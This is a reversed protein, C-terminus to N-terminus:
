KLRRDRAAGIVEEYPIGVADGSDIARIRSVIEEEWAAEIGAIDGADDDSLLRNALRLKEQHSLQLAKETIEEFAISM